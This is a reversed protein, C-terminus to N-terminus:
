ISSNFSGAMRPREASATARRVLETLPVKRLDAVASVIEETEM